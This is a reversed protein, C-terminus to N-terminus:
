LSPPRTQDILSWLHDLRRDLERVANLYRAEEVELPDLQRSRLRRWVQDRWATEARVQAAVRLSRARELDTLATILASM